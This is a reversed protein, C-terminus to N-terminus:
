SAKSKAARKRMESLRKSIYKAREEETLFIKSKQLAGYSRGDRTTCIYSVPYFGPTGVGVYSAVDMHSNGADYHEISVDYTTVAAGMERGEKDYLGFTHAETKSNRPNKWDIYALM